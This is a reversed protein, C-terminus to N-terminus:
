ASVRSRRSRLGGARLRPDACGGARARRGDIGAARERARAVHFESIDAGVVRGGPSVAAALALTSAGTGCGVDLAAEGPRPAALQLLRELVGSLGEDLLAENEVWKMGAPSNWYAAQDANAGATGDENAM